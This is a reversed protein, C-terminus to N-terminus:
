SRFIEALELPPVEDLQAYTCSAPDRDPRWHLLRASHRFRGNQVQEYAVEAVLEIRLPTWSLDKKANWRSPAGPMRGTEGSAHAEMEAWERWPHDELAGELHTSLEGLLEKRRRATFSSAVGVHHLHGADDFLGLLLSGVGDGDKHMRFGAVVCDATRRHKVKFQVRKNPEYSGGAPKAMIGDLGAGEFRVFWDQAQARDTTSPTLHIPPVAKAMALKLQAQRERFPEDMLSRDGLALLDFAVLSAPTEVSLREVRSEAPHIRQQLADFDLHDGSSVVIEADVVCRPPLSARLPDLLEPFYRTLPRENRSGLVIEDGDRFVICRFGDWKPEFILDEGEPIGEVSKALMPSVPPMVPLDV